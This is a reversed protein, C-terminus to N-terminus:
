QSVISFGPKPPQSLYAPDWLEAVDKFSEVHHIDPLEAFSVSRHRKLISKTSPTQPPSSPSQSGSVPSPEPAPEPVPMNPMSFTLTSMGLMKSLIQRSPSQADDLVGGFGDKLPATRSPLPLLVKCPSRAGGVQPEPVKCPSPAEGVQPEPEEVQWWDNSHPEPEEQLKAQSEVMSDSKGVAESSGNNEDGNLAAGVANLFGVFMEIPNDGQDNSLAETEDEHVKEQKKEADWPWQVNSLAKMWDHEEKEEAKAADNEWNNSQQLWQDLDISFATM